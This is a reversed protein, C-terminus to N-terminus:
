EMIFFKFYGIQKGTTMMILIALTKSILMSMTIRKYSTIKYSNLCLQYIFLTYGGDRTIETLRTCFQSTQIVYIMADEGMWGKGEKNLPFLVTEFYAM